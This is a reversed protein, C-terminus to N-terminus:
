EEEEEERDEEPPSGGEGEQEEQEEEDEESDSRVDPRVNGVSDEFVRRGQTFFLKVDRNSTATIAYQNGIHSM